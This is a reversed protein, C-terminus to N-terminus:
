RAIEIEVVNVAEYGVENAYKVSCRLIAGCCVSEEENGHRTSVVLSVARGHRLVLSFDRSNKKQALAPIGWLEGQSNRDSVVLLGKM